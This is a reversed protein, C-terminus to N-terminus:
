PQVEDWLYAFEPRMRIQVRLRAFADYLRTYVTKENVGLVQSIESVTMNNALRLVVVLRHKEDLGDVLTWLEDRTENQVVQAETGPQRTALNTLSEWAQQLARRAARKRLIMRCNNVAIKLLWAKFNTGLQYQHLAAAAQMFTDQASDQADAPDRLISLTLRYVPAGFEVVMAEMVAPNNVGRDGILRDM